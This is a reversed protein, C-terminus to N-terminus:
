LPPYVADSILEFSFNILLLAGDPPHPILDNALSTSFEGNPKCLHLVISAYVETESRRKPMLGQTAPEKGRPHMDGHGIDGQSNDAHSANWGHNSRYRRDHDREYHKSPVGGHLAPKPKDTLRSRSSKHTRIKTKSQRLARFRRSFLQARWSHSAFASWARKMSSFAVRAQPPTPSRSM